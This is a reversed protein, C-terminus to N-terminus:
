HFEQIKRSANKLYKKSKWINEANSFEKWKILYYNNNYKKRIMDLIKKVEYKDEDHEIEITICLSMSLLAKKLLSVHFILYIEISKSLNLKYANKESNDLIKFSEIKVHDLKTSLWKTKINRWLLFVKKRKKFILASLRDKDYYKATRYTVFRM